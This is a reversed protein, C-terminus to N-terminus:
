RTRHDLAIQAEHLGGVGRSRISRQPVPVIVNTETQHTKPEAVDYVTFILHPRRLTSKGRQGGKEEGEHVANPPPPPPWTSGSSHLWKRHSM